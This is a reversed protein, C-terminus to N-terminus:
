NVRYHRVMAPRGQFAAREDDDVLAWRVGDLVLVLTYSGAPLRAEPTMEFTVGNKCSHGGATATLRAPVHAGTADDLLFWHTADINALVLLSEDAAAPGDASIRFHEGPEINTPQGRPDEDRISGGGLPSARMERLAGDCHGCGVLNLVLAAAAALKM